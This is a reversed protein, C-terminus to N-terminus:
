DRVGKDSWDKRALPKTAPIRSYDIHREASPSAALMTSGCTAQTNRM